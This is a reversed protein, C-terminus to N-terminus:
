RSPSRGIWGFESHAQRVFEDSNSKTSISGSVQPGFYGGHRPRTPERGQVWHQKWGRIHDLDPRINRDMRKIQNPGEGDDDEETDRCACDCIRDESM